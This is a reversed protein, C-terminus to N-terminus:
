EKYIKLLKEAALTPTIKGKAIEDKISEIAKQVKDNNDFEDRLSDEVMRFVWEISQAKRRQEFVGSQKITKEFKKIV